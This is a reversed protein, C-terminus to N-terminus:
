AWTTKRTIVYCLPRTGLTEGREAVSLYDSLYKSKPAFSSAEGFASLVRM